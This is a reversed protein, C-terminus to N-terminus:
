TTLSYLVEKWERGGTNEKEKKKRRKKKRKEKITLAATQNQELHATTAKVDFNAKLAIVNVSRRPM